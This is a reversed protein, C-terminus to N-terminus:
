KQVAWWVLPPLSDRRRATGALLSHEFPGQARIKGERFSPVMPVSGFYGFVNQNRLSENLMTVGLIGVIVAFTKAVLAIDKTDRILFRLLFYGGLVDWLTAVQYTFASTNGWYYFTAAMARFIAWCVFIKDLDNFKGTFIPARSRRTAVILRALGFPIVIRPVYLHVGALHLQQGVPLLFLALLFPVVVYKRPLALMLVIAAVMAIVVAPHMVTDASGGGFNGQGFDQLQM